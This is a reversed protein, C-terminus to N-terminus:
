FSPGCVNATASTFGGELSRLKSCLIRPYKLVDEVIHSDENWTSILSGSAGETLCRIGDGMELVWFIEFLVNWM